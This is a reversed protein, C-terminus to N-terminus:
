KDTMQNRKAYLRFWYGFLLHFPLQLVRTAIRWFLNLEIDKMERELDISKLNKIRNAEFLPGVKLDSFSRVEGEIGLRQTIQTLTEEPRRIVDEFRIWVKKGKPHILYILCSVFNVAWYYLNGEVPHKSKQEINKKLFSNVVSVPERVLYVLNLDLRSDKSLWHARLAYHSSDVVADAGTKAQLQQFLGANSDCYDKQLKRDSWRLINKFSAYSEMLDYFSYKSHKKLNISDQLIGKWFEQTEQKDSSPIGKYENWAFLEGPYFLGKINGLIIGLVTSGSRAGGMIYIVNIKRM